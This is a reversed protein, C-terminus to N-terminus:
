GSMELTHKSGDKYNKETWSNYRSDIFWTKVYTICDVEGTWRLDYLKKIDEIM